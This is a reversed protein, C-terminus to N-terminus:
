DGFFLQITDQTFVAWEGTPYLNIVDSGTDYRCIPVQEKDIPTPEVAILTIGKSMHEACDNCINYNVITNAKNFDTIEKQCFFCINKTNQKTM